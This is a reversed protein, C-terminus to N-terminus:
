EEGDELGRDGSGKREDSSGAALDHDSQRGQRFRAFDAPKGSAIWQLYGSTEDRGVVEGDPWEAGDPNPDDFPDQTGRLEHPKRRHEALDHVQADPLDGRIRAALAQAADRLRDGEPSADPAEPRTTWLRELQAVAHNVKRWSDAPVLEVYVPGDGTTVVLDFGLDGVRADRTISHGLATFTRELTALADHATPAFVTEQVTLPEPDITPRAIIMAWTKQEESAEDQADETTAPPSHDAPPTDAHRNLEQRQAILVRLLDLAARRERPELQDVGDPLEDRFPTGTVRQGVATFAVHEPVGAVLAIARITGSEPTGKYVGRAIQSATTRNLQLGTPDALEAKAVAEEMERFSM